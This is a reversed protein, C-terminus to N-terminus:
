QFFSFTYDFQTQVRWSCGCGHGYCSSVLFGESSTAGVVRAYLVRCFCTVVYARLTERGYVLVPCNEMSHGVVVAWIPDVNVLM